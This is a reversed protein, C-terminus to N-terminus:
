IGSIELFIDMFKTVKPCTTSRQVIQKYINAENKKLMHQLKSAEPVSLKTKM